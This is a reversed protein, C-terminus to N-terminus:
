KKADRKLQRLERRTITKSYALNQPNVCSCSLTEINVKPNREALDRLYGDAEDPTLMVAGNIDLLVGLANYYFESERNAIRYDTELLVTGDKIQLNKIYCNQKFGKYINKRGM